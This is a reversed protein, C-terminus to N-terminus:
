VIKKKKKAAAGKKGKPFVISNEVRDDICALLFDIFRQAYPNAGEDRVYSMVATNPLPPLGDDLIPMEELVASRPLVSVGLGARIASQVAQVANADISMKWPRGITTLADFAIQRYSCPPHMLVLEVPTDEDEEGEWSGTWVLQEEWLVKGYGAEPGAFVVDLEDKELAELLSGGLGLVLSLDCNPHARRFRALLTHLHQPALYEAFGVRLLTADDPATVALFAEDALDLIRRAYSVFTEGAPTLSLSRSNREVLKTGLKDELKAIQLSVASQTRYIRKAAASFSGEEVVAVLARLCILDTDLKFQMANSKSM